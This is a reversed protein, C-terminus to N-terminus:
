YGLIIDLVAPSARKPMDCALSLASRQAATFSSAAGAGDCTMACQDSTSPGGNNGLLDLRISAPPVFATLNDVESMAFTTLDLYNPNTVTVGAQLGNSVDFTVPTANLINAPAVFHTLVEAEDVIRSNRLLHDIIGAHQPTYGLQNRDGAEAAQRLISPVYFYTLDPRITYIWMRAGGSLQSIHDYIFGVAESHETSTSVWMSARARDTEDCSGGLAHALVDMRQGYGSIGHHFVVDPPQTDVRYVILIPDAHAPLVFLM